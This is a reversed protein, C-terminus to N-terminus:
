VHARGIKVNVRVTIENLTLRNFYRLNIILIEKETLTGMALDIFVKIQEETFARIKNTKNYM